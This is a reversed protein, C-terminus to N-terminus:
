QELTMVKINMKALLEDDHSPTANNTVLLKNGYFISNAGALFVLAHVADSMNERGASMRIYSKPMLIRAVAIVRVLELDDLKPMNELPTGPIPSLLNIPVSEPHEPMNALQQLFSIRDQRSEGMGIIGGCCIKLDANRVHELTDLREQFSRTTIINPYYEPSTDINHNYFDLGAEKLAIAQDANLSGLTVCTELGLDKIATIMTTIKNFGSTPPRRWAAALCFRTAGEQQAQKAAALVKEFKFLPEKQTDTQYHASQPCYACDEPCGGTKINLLKSIQLLQDPFYHRYSSYAQYVLQTLPLEFLAAIEAAQWNHRVKNIHM